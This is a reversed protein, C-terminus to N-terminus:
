KLACMCVCVSVKGACEAEFKELYKKHREKYSLGMKVCSGVAFVTLGGYLIKAKITTSDKFANHTNYRYPQAFISHKGRLIGLCRRWAAM